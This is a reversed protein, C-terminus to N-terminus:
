QHTIPTSRGLARLLNILRSQATDVVAPAAGVALAVVVVVVVPTTSVVLTVLLAGKFVVVVLEGVVEVKTGGEDVVRCSGDDVGEVKEMGWVGDFGLAVVVKTGADKVGVVAGAVVKTRADWDVPDDLTGSADVTDVVGVAGTMVVGSGIVVGVGKAMVEAMGVVEWKLEVEFAGKVTGTAALVVTTVVVVV